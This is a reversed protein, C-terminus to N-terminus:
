EVEVKVEGEAGGKTLRRGRETVEPQLVAWAGIFTDDRLSLRDACRACKVPDLAIWALLETVARKPQETDTEPALSDAAGSIIRRLTGWAAIVSAGCSGLRHAQGQLDTTTLLHRPGNM